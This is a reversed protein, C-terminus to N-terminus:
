YPHGRDKGLKKKNSLYPTQGTMLFINKTPFADEQEKEEQQIKWKQTNFDFVVTDNLEKTIEFIGGFVVMQNKYMVVAHGSRATPKLDSEKFVVQMWTLAVIDLLWIDNLKTNDDDKGGFVIM